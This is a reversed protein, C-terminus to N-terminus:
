KKQGPMKLDIWVLRHDSAQIADAGEQQERPWYVGASKIELENSPLVYDVRLNGSVQDSFDATDYEAAGHHTQNAQGQKKAAALGGQSAPVLRSNIRPHTLLQQIAGSRSDGDNPDANLDGVIVFHSHAAIGGRQGRDDYQYGSRGTDAAVYDAWFRIEDHNRRGNRDESGDFVPPTPHSALLHLTQKGIRIPLDWHSKSSLRLRASTAPSYYDRPIQHGPMEQWLFKQFTRAQDRDIPFRSLVLMGYQGPHRGFGFADAPEDLQGNQNLDIGSPLGTNVAAFFHHPYKLPKLNAGQSIALYSARFIRAAEGQEDFDFENLLLIDPRVRQIVRAVDRAQSSGAQLDEVLQGSQQRYLSVNYSAVRFQEAAAPEGTVSYVLTMIIAALM